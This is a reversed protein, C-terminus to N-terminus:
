VPNAQNTVVDLKKEARPPHFKFYFVGAGATVGLLLWQIALRVYDLRYTTQPGYPNHYTPPQFLWQYPGPSETVHSVNSVIKTSVEVWPPYVGMGLFVCVALIIVRQQYLNM